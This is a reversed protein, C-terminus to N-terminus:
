KSTSAGRRDKPALAFCGFPLSPPQHGGVFLLRRFLAAGASQRLDRVRHDPEVLLLETASRGGRPRVPGTGVRDDGDEGTMPIAEDRIQRRLEDPMVLYAAVAKAYAIVECDNTRQAASEAALAYRSGNPVDQAYRALRALADFAYAESAFDDNRQSWELLSLAPAKVRARDTRRALVMVQRAVAPLIEAHQEIIALRADDNKAAILLDAVHDAESKAEAIGNAGPKLYWVAPIPKREHRANLTIGSGDMEVVLWDGESRVRYSPISICDYHEFLDRVSSWSDTSLASPKNVMPLMTRIESSTLAQCFRAVASQESPTVAVFFSLLLAPIM